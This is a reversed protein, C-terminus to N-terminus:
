YLGIHHCKMGQRGAVAQHQESGSLSRGTEWGNEEGVKKM